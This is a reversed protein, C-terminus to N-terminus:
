KKSFTLLLFDIGIFIKKKNEVHNSAHIDKEPSSIHNKM